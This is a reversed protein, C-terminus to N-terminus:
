GGGFRERKRKGKRRSRGTTDGAGKRIDKEGKRHTDERADATKRKKLTQGRERWNTKEGPRIDREVAM